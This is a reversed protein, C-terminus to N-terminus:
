HIFFFVRYISIGKISTDGSGSVLVSGDLSWDLSYIEQEHGLFSNKVKGTDLDWIRIVRDEAGTALYKSDPSFVVSRIYLDM